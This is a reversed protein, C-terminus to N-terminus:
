IICIDVRNMDNQSQTCHQQRSNQVDIIVLRSQKVLCPDNFEIRWIAGIYVWRDNNNARMALLARPALHPCNRRMNHRVTHDRCRDTHQDCFHNFRDLHRRPGLFWTNSLTCIPATQRISNFSGHNTAILGTAIM